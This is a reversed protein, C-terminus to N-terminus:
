DIRGFEHLLKTANCITGEIPISVPSGESGQRDDATGCSMVNIDVEESIVVPVNNILWLRKSPAELQTRRNRLEFLTVVYLNLDIIMM